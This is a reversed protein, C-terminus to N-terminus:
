RTTSLSLLVAARLDVRARVLEAKADRQEFRDMALPREAAVGVRLQDAVDDRTPHHKRGAIRRWAPQSVQERAPQSTVRALAMGVHVREQGLQRAVTPCAPLTSRATPPPRPQPRRPARTSDARVDARPRTPRAPSGPRARLVAHPRLRVRDAFAHLHPSGPRPRARAEQRDSGRAGSVSGISRRCARAPAARKSALSARSSPPGPQVHTSGPTRIENHVCAHM